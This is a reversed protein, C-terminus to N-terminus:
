SRIEAAKRGSRYTFVLLFVLLVVALAGGIPIGWKSWWSEQPQTFTVSVPSDPKEPLPAGAEPQTGERLDQQVVKGQNDLADVVRAFDQRFVRMVLTATEKGERTSIIVQDLSGNVGAVLSKVAAVSQDVKNVEVTLSASPAQGVTRAATFLNVSITALDVRRKMYNLQGQTSEISARIRALEREITLIDGVSNAKSLLNLLSQEERQLSTLRANLDIFQQTVDQSGASQSRVIGLSELRSLATSFQDQPVRITASAQEQSANGSRSLTEVLGGLSIAVAQLQDVAPGVAKVEISMTATSIVQRQATDLVNTQSASSEQSAAAAVGPAPPVAARPMPPPTGSPSLAPSRLDPAPAVAIGPVGKEQNSPAIGVLPPSSVGGGSGFTQFSDGQGGGLGRGVWVGGATMALVVLIALAASFVPRRAFLNSLNTLFSSRKTKVPEELKKEIRAWLDVPAKLAQKRTVFYDVLKQEADVAPFEKKMQDRNM